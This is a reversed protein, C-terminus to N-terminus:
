QVSWGLGLSPRAKSVTTDDLVGGSVVVYYRGWDRFASSLVLKLLLEGLKFGPLHNM